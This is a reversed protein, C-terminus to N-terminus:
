AEQSKNALHIIGFLVLVIGIIGLATGSNTGILVLHGSFGGIIFVIGVILSRM